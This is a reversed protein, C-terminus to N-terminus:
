PHQSTSHENEEKTQLHYIEKTYLVELHLNHSTFLPYLIHTSIITHGTTIISSIKTPSIKLVTTKGM